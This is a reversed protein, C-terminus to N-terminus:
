KPAELVVQRVEGFTSLPKDFKKEDGVVVLIMKGPLLYKRAVRLVDRKTVKAINKRYNELYGKPYGYYELRAQQAVVSASSTFAFIFSNVISERALSIEDDSVSKRTMDAIIGEMLGIAKATSASKTESEATFTGPFRSGARFSSDVNYALGEKARVVSMLRSSFGNGGLITNMVNIAYLDPNNKDIGLHGMRIVTQDIDKKVFLVEPKGNPSPEPVLPLSVEGRKWGAFAKKLKELIEKRDFDGSVALIINNPHFYRRHFAVLDDRNLSSVSHITPYRGLPHDRYIAKLLERDAVEKPDDNQRRIAEITLNKGQLVRDERFAPVTLVQAFLDLTRDLNKKLCNMSVSGVDNGIGSEISSAMFELEDDLAEPSTLSTGGGRLVVGTLSALGTKDAPEYVSGTGVYAQISVLPLERDPLLYVIMGNDLVVREATPVQFVLPPFTMKRPDVTSGAIASIAPFLSLFLWLTFLLKKM